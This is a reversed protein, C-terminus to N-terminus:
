KVPHVSGDVAVIYTIGDEELVLDGSKRVEKVGYPWLTKLSAAQRTTQALPRIGVEADYYVHTVPPDDLGAGVRYVSIVAHRWWASLERRATIHNIANTMARYPTTNPGEAVTTQKSDLDYIKWIYAGVDPGEARAWSPTYDETYGMLVTNKSDRVVITYLSVRTSLPGIEEEIYAIAADHADKPTSHSRPSTYMTGKNPDTVDWTYGRPNGYGPSPGPNKGHGPNRGHGLNDDSNGSNTSRMMGVAMVGFIVIPIMTFITNMMDSLVNPQQIPAIPPVEAVEVVDVSDGVSLGVAEGANVELFYRAPVVATIINGPTVGRYIETVVMGESIFVIDLDFLMPATTVQIFRSTGTDFFMGVGYGMSAIGGLGASLEWDETALYAWWQSADITAIAQGPM